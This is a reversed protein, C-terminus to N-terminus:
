RECCSKEDIPIPPPTNFLAHSQLASFHVTVNIFIVGTGLLFVSQPSSNKLEALHHLSTCYFHANHPTYHPLLHAKDLVHNYGTYGGKVQCDVSPLSHTYASHIVLLTTCHCTNIASQHLVQSSTDETKPSVNPTSPLSIDTYCHASCVLCAYM